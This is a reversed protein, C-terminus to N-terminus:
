GARRRKQRVLERIEDLWREAHDCHSMAADLVAERQVRPLEQVFPTEYENVGDEAKALSKKAEQLGQRITEVKSMAGRRERGHYRQRGYGDAEMDVTTRQDNHHQKHHDSRLRGLQVLCRACWQSGPKRKGGCRMCLKNARRAKRTRARRAADRGRAGKAHEDCLLTEDGCPHECGPYTCIGSAKREEYSLVARPEQVPVRDPGELVEDLATGLLANENFQEQRLSGRWRM